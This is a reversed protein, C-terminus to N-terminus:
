EKRDNKEKALKSFYQYSDVYIDYNILQNAMTRPVFALGTDSMYSNFIYLDFMNKLYYKLHEYKQAQFFQEYLPAGGNVTDIRWYFPMNFISMNKFVRLFPPLNKMYEKRENTEDKSIEKMVFQTIYYFEEFSVIAEAFRLDYKNLEEIITNLKKFQNFPKSEEEFKSM